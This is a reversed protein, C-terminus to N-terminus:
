FRLEFCQERVSRGWTAAEEESVLGFGAREYVARAADLGAFTWLRVGAMDAQRAAALARAVLAHGLGRGRARPEAIFWRLHAMGDAAAEGAADISVTAQFGAGDSAHLVTACPPDLRRLFAAMDLAVKTEFELGFGAAAAYHRAHLGVCWGLLGPEWGERIRAAGDGM